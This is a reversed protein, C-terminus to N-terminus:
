VNLLLLYVFYAPCREILVHKKHKVLVFFVDDVKRIILFLDFCSVIMMCTVLNIYRHHIFEFIDKSVRLKQCGSAYSKSKSALQTRLLICLANNGCTRVCMYTVVIDEPSLSLSLSDCSPGPYYCYAPGSSFKIYPTNLGRKRM